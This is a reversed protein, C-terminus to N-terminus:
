RKLPGASASSRSRSSITSLPANINLSFHLFTDMLTRVPQDLVEAPPRTTEVAGFDHVFDLDGIFRVFDPLELTLLDQLGVVGVLRNEGDIVPLLGVHYRVFVAAAERITSAEAISVVSRKMCESIKM